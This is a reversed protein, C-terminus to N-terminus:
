GRTHTISSILKGTSMIKLLGNASFNKPRRDFTKSFLLHIDHSKFFYKLYKNVMLIRM